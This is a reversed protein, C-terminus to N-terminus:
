RHAFRPELSRRMSLVVNLPVKWATQARVSRPLFGAVDARFLYEVDSATGDLAPAMVIRTLVQRVQVSDDVIPPAVDNADEVDLVITGSPETWWRHRATYSRDSLPWPLHYHFYVLATDEGRDLVRVRDLWPYMRPLSEFDSIRRFIVDPTALVRGRAYGWYQGDTEASWVRIGDVDAAPSWRAEVSAAPAARPAGVLLAVLLMALM